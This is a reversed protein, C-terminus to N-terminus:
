ISGEWVDNAQAGPFPQREAGKIWGTVSKGPLRLILSPYELNGLTTLELSPDVSVATPLTFIALIKFRGIRYEQPILSSLDVM